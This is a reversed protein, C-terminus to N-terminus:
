SGRIGNENLRSQLEALLKKYAYHFIYEAALTSVKTRIQDFDGKSMVTLIRGNIDNPFNMDAATFVWPNINEIWEDVSEQYHKLLKPSIFDLVRDMLSEQLMYDDGGFIKKIVNKDAEKEDPPVPTPAPLKTPEAAPEEASPSQQPAATTFANPMPQAPQSTEEGDVEGPPPTATSTSVPLKTKIPDGNDSPPATAPPATAAPKENTFVNSAGKTPDQEFHTGAKIADQKYQATPFTVLIGNANYAQRDPFNGKELITGAFEFVLTSDLGKDILYECLYGVHENNQIDFIGSSIRSDISVDNLVKEIIRDRSM